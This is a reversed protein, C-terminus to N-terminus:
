ASTGTEKTVSPARTQPANHFRAGANAVAEQTAANKRSATRSLRNPKHNPTAKSHNGVLLPAKRRVPRDINSIRYDRKQARASDRRPTSTSTLSNRANGCDSAASVRPRGVDVSDLTLVAARANTDRQRKEELTAVTYRQFSITGPAHAAYQKDCEHTFYLTANLGFTARGFPSSSRGRSRSRTSAGRRRRDASEVCEHVTVPAVRLV